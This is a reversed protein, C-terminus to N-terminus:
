TLRPLDVVTNNELQVRWDRRTEDIVYGTLIDGSVRHRTSVKACCTHVRRGRVHSLSCLGEITFVERIRRLSIFHVLTSKNHCLIIETDKLRCLGSGFLALKLNYALYSRYYKQTQLKVREDGFLYVKQSLGSRPSRMTLQVMQKSFYKFDQHVGIM